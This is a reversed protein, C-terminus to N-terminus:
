CETERPTCFNQVEKPIAREMYFYPPRTGGIYALKDIYIVIYRRRTPQNKENIEIFSYEIPNLSYLYWNLYM